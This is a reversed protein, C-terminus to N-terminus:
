WAWTRRSWARSRTSTRAADAVGRSLRHEEEVTLPGERAPLPQAPTVNHATVEHATEPVIFDM